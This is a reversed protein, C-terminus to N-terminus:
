KEACGLILEARFGQYGLKIKGTLIGKGTLGRWGRAWTPGGLPRERRRVGSGGGGRGNRWWAMCRRTGGERVWTFDFRLTPNDGELEGDLRRRGTEEEGKVGEFSVPILVGGGGRRGVVERAKYFVGGGRALEMTSMRVGREEGGRGSRM